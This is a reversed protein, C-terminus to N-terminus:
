STYLDQSFIIWNLQMEIGFVVFRCPATTKDVEEDFWEASCHFIEQITTIGDLYVPSSQTKLDLGPSCLRMM